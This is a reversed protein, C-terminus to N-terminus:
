RAISIRSSCCSNGSREVRAQTLARAGVFPYPSVFEDGIHRHLVSCEALEVMLWHFRRSMNAYQDLLCGLSGRIRWRDGGDRGRVAALAIQASRVGRQAALRAAFAELVSQIELTDCLDQTTCTWTHRDRNLRLGNRAKQM